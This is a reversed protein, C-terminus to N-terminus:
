PTYAFIKDLLIWYWSLGSPYMYCLLNASQIRFTLSFSISCVSMHAHAGTHLEHMHTHTHLVQAHRHTHTYTNRTMRAQSRARVRTYLSLFRMCFTVGGAYMCVNLYARLLCTCKEHLVM